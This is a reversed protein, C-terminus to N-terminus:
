VMDLLLLVGINWVLYACGVCHSAGGVAGVLEPNLYQPNAHGAVFGQV